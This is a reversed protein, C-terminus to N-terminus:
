RSSTKKKVYVMIWEFLCSLIDSHICAHFCHPVDRLWVAEQNVAAFKAFSHAVCNAERFVHNFSIVDFNHALSLIEDAVLWLYSNDHSVGSIINIVSLCDFEVELRLFDHNLALKLGVQLQYLLNSPM